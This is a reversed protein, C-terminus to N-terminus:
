IVLYRLEVITNDTLEPCSPLELITILSFHPSSPIQQLLPVHKDSLPIHYTRFTDPLDSFVQILTAWLRPDVGSLNFNPDNPDYFPILERLVNYSLPSLPSQYRLRISGLFHIQEPYEFLTKLAFYALSPVYVRSVNAQSDYPGPQHVAPPHVSKSITTGADDSTQSTHRWTDWLIIHRNM